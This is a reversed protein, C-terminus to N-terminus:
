ILKFVDKKALGVYAMALSLLAMILLSVTVLNLLNQSYCLLGEM